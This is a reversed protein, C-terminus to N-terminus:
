CDSEQQFPSTVIHMNFQEVKRFFSDIEDSDGIYCVETNYKSDLRLSRVANKMRRDVVLFDAYPLMSSIHDIDMADGHAIPTAGVMLRAVLTSSIEVSPASSFYPSYLFNMLGEIGKPQGGQLDWIYILDCVNLSIISKIWGFKERQLQEEYKIGEEACRKRLAEWETHIGRRESKIRDVTALLGMDVTVIYRSTLAEQAMRIPDSVFADTYRFTVSKEREIYSAMLREVQVNEIGRKERTSVGLSLEDLIDMFESRGAWVELPQGAEPCLLKGARTLSYIQDRLRQLRPREVDSLRGLKLLALKLLVSTDLLIIPIPCKEIRIDIQSM